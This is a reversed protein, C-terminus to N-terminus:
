ADDFEANDEVLLAPTEAVRCLGPLPCRKCTKCGEKPDVAAEGRLFDEALDLLAASWADRLGDTYPDKLLGSSRSLGAFLQTEADKVKGTFCTEGARIRAFLVGSVDKVNGFVAYLPLQPEKPRPPTWNAARVDDGTKYDILLRAQGAVEDIRDARLRLKLGGVDVDKLKEECAVVTFPQRKAEEELWEGVRTCLRRQEGELYARQWMDEGADPARAFVEAVVDRVMATLQNERRAALLDDLSNLRGFRPSWIGEMVKHLLVGREAATLGWEGRNLERAGLRKAAFARFPCAAQDALVDAGGAALERPWAIVGSDDDIEEMEAALHEQERVGLQSRLAACEEWALGKAIAGMLPSPRLEGDKNRAAHSVVVVPASTALSATVACSLAFDAEPTAHPMKTKQQVAYPLLPHMRGRLPWSGDDAGLFWLADFRQGAAELAGMIQVPAGESEIAFVTEECHAALVRLFDAFSIQRADFDLLAVDELAREWKAMAQFQATDARRGGPWGCQKLLVQALDVWRSPERREEAFQNAAAMKEMQLLRSQLSALMPWKAPELRRCVTAMSIEMTLSRAERLSADFRAAALMEAETGTLFGSLLLWSVEEERLPGAAWRLLLLAASVVPTWALPQGLSFEFPMASASASIDDTEPMLVRRFIREVEARMSGLDPVVVGIRIEERAAELFSRVWWACATIEERLDNARLLRAAAASKEAGGVVVVTGRRRVAAVVEEQAPTMRDFGVLLIGDPLALSGDRLAAAVRAELEGSSLWGQRQCERDFNSAWQRFREADMQEWAAKREGHAEHECLLRYAGAALLAMGDPSVLLKADERQMRLWVQREQLDTLLLPPDEALLSLSQWMRRMWSDWDEIAPTAWALKGEGRMRLAYERRLWRAARQNATLILAESRFASEIEPSLRTPSM